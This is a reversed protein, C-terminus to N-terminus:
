DLNSNMVYIFKPLISRDEADM